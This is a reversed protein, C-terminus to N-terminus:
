SPKNDKAEQEDLRDMLAVLAAPTMDIKVIKGGEPVPKSLIEEVVKKVHEKKGECWPCCQSM